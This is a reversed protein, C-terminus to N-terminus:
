PTASTTSFQIDHDSLYQTGTGILPKYIALSPVGVLDGLRAVAPFLTAGAGRQKDVADLVLIMKHTRKRFVNELSVALSNISDIRDFDDAEGEVDLAM